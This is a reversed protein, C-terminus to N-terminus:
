DEGPRKLGFIGDLHIKFRSHTCGHTNHIYRILPVAQQSRLDIPKIEVGLKNYKIDVDPLDSDVPKEKM